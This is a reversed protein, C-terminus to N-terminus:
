MIVPSVVAKVIHVKTLLTIDRSKLVGDLNTMRGSSLGPISGLDGANCTSEKSDPGGSFGM